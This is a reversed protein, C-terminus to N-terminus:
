RDLVIGWRPDRRFGTDLADMLAKAAERKSPYWDQADDNNIQWYWAGRKAQSVSATVTWPKGDLTTKIKGAYHGPAVRKLKLGM